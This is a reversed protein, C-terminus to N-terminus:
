LDEISLTTDAGAWAETFHAQAEQAGAEDGLGKLALALGFYARPDRPYAALDQRFADAAKTYDRQRLALGGRAALAPWLPIMEEGFNEKQYQALRDLTKYAEAINGQSEALRALFLETSDGAANGLKSRMAHAEDLKGLHLAALGRIAVDRFQAGDTLAYAEDYRGFRLATFAGLPLDFAESSRASWIKANAYNGLMMSASYGVYVDHTEMRDHNPNRSLDVRLMEFLEYARESSAVAAAYNGTEIWVHAPMHALHETRPQFTMADLRQACPVAVTHDAAQDGAHICLHNAMVDNPDAALQQNVFVLAAGRDRHELLAEAALNLTMADTSDRALRQMANRYATEDADADAFTGRYRLAMADILAREASTASAENAVAKAIAAQGRAFREPTMQTNMDPGAALAEGWYAMPNSPAGAAIAAFARESEGGNYAYYLFLALAFPTV